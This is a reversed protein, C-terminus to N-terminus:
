KLIDSENVADVESLKRENQQLPAIRQHLSRNEKVLDAKPNPPSM